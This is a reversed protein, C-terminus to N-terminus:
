GCCKKYKKDSGCPCRDNRGLEPTTGDVYYWRQDERLFRSCEYLNCTRGKELYRAFFTVFAENEHSGHNCRTVNLGLWETTAFSESLLTELGAVRQSPHWTEVLWAANQKVYASYRSRMLQEARQPTQQGNLFPQCCLSYQEGSCCPCKESM